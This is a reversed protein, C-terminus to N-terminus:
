FFKFKNTLPTGWRPNSSLIADIYVMDKIYIKERILEYKDQGEPAILKGNKEDLFKYIYINVYGHFDLLYELYGIHEKKDATFVKVKMGLPMDGETLPVERDFKGNLTYFRITKIKAKM